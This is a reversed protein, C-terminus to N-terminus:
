KTYGEPTSNISTKFGMSGVKDAIKRVGDTIKNFMEIDEDKVWSYEEPHRIERPLHLYFEFGNEPSYVYGVDSASGNGFRYWSYEDYARAPTERKLDWMADEVQQFAKIIKEDPKGYKKQHRLAENEDYVSMVTNETASQARNKMSFRESFIWPQLTKVHYDRSRNSFNEESPHFFWVGERELVDTNENLVKSIEEKIIQRLQSKKM